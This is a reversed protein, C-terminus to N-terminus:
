AHAEPRDRMRSRLLESASYVPARRRRALIADVARDSAHKRRAREVAERMLEAIVASKNVDAFTANFADNVDDPVIFTVTAM